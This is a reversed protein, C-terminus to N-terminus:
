PKRRRGSPYAARCHPGCYSEDALAPRGCFFFGPSKPDGVPWHCTAATLQFLTKRQDAPINKDFELDGTVGDIALSFAPIGADRQKMKARRDVAVKREAVPKRAMAEVAALVRERIEPPKGVLGLEEGCELASLGVNWLKKLRVLQDADLSV